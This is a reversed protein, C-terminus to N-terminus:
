AEIDDESDTSEGGETDESDSDIHIIIRPCESQIGDKKWYVQEVSEEVHKCANSWRQQDIRASGSKVLEKVEAVKFTTNDRAVGDKLDGWILEIPNLDCHYSPLKLPLHGNRKLFEDVKYVPEPKHLKIIEYLAPKTMKQEFPLSHKTLWAQMEGKRTATTPAKTGEERISHYSANDMVITSNAPLVPSLQDVIWKM